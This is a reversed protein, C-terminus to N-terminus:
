EFIFSLFIVIILLIMNHIQMWNCLKKLYIFEDIVDMNYFWFTKFSLRGGGGLNIGSKDALYTHIYSKIAIMVVLYIRLIILISM